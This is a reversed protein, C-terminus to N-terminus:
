MYSVIEFSVPWIQYQSGLDIYTQYLCRIQDLCFQQDLIRLRSLIFRHEKKKKLSYNLQFCLSHLLLKRPMKLYKSPKYLTCNNQSSQNSNNDDSSMSENTSNKAKKSGGQSISLQSMSKISNNLKQSQDRKRKISQKTPNKVTQANVLQESVINNRTHILTTIQEENLGRARCKRKFHQLKRNGHCKSKKKVINQVEGSLVQSPSLV